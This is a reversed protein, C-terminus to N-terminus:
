AEPAAHPYLIVSKGFEPLHLRTDTDWTDRIAELRAATKLFNGLIRPYPAIDGFPRTPDDFHVPFVHKAGTSTVVAQWYQEAYDSGLGEILGVGLMVVDAAVNDLAQETFGGSAQVVTTGHPHAVVISYSRGERYAQVPAPQQLPADITGPMPVSGSWGVPAHPSAIMTVTFNGFTYSAGPETVIIQDEPVGAGRAINATSESGIISASSRNALAGVDMAHDWHSHAPIIAALRRMRYEDMVYNITAADSSVPRRLVVDFISPRSIFGDILVQTEGDDFLMTTTGLWTMTVADIRPEIFPYPAWTIGDLAVRDHWFWAVAAAGGVVIATTVIAARRAWRRITALSSASM